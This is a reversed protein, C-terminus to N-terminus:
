LKGPLDLEQKEEIADEGVRHLVNTFVNKMKKRSTYHQKRVKYPGCLLKKVRNKVM